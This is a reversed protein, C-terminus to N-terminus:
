KNWKEKDGEKGGWYNIVQTLKVCVSQVQLLLNISKLEILSICFNNSLFSLPVIIICLLTSLKIRAKVESFVISISLCLKLQLVYNDSCSQNCM